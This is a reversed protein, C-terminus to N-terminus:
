SVGTIKSISAKAVSSVKSVSSYLVGSVKLINTTATNFTNAAFPSGFQVFDMLQLNISSKSAPPPLPSGYINYDLKELNQPLAM